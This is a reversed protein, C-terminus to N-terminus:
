RPLILINGSHILDPNVLDNVEAVESWRYGDGYARVCIDWLSDGKQVEYTTESIAQTNESENESAITVQTTAMKPEVDPIVIETGESIINPNEINNAQAIDIWNYGSGYAKEAIIWLSDSEQITYSQGVTAEVKNQTTAEPLKNALDKDKFYNVVLIGTIVIVLAGLVM